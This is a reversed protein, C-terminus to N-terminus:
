SHSRWPEDHRETDMGPSQVSRTIGTADFQEAPPQVSQRIRQREAVRVQDGDSELNGVANDVQDRGEGPVLEGGLDEM